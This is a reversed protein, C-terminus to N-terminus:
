LLNMLYSIHNVDLLMHVYQWIQRDANLLESVATSIKM